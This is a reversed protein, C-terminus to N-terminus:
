KSTIYYTINNFELLVKSKSILNLLEQDEIEDPSSVVAEKILRYNEDYIKIESPTDFTILDEKEQLLKEKLDDLSSQYSAFDDNTDKINENGGALLQTSAFSLMVFSLLLAKSASSTLNKM